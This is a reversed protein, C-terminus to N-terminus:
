KVLNKSSVNKQKQRIEEATATFLDTHRSVCIEEDPNPLQKSRIDTIDVCNKSRYFELLQGYKDQNYESEIKEIDRELPEWDDLGIIRRIWHGHYQPLQNISIKEWCNPAPM